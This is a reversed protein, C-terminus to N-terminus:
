NIEIPGRFGCEKSACRANSQGSPLLLWHCQPCPQSLPKINVAIDCDLSKYNICGYFRTNRKLRTREVLEGTECKPCAVGITLPGSNKCDPFGSCSLFRGYKGLRIVMPRECKECYKDTEEQLERRDIRPAEVLVDEVTEDFPKFFEMLSPNWKANGKAIDDLTKEMESTFGIDLINTFYKALFETVVEGLLTPHFRGRDLIVYDRDRITNLISAYTSPRGIGEKELNRILTAESFRPPPQTFKQQPDLGKCILEQGRDFRPLQQVGEEDEEDDKGESYIVRFGDFKPVTGISRFGYIDKTVTGEANIDITTRDFKSDTMQSSVMRKWILTYLRHQDPELFSKLSDPTRFISTPRIAEHAEQAGQVRRSYVRAKDPLYASGFKQNIYDRTETYASSAVNTSDTRMYTILGVVEAGEIAKGEYLQQAVTMTRSASFRLARSADQQLTSTIFPASPKRTSERTEFRSVAFSAEGLDELVEDSRNKDSIVSKRDNITVLTSKISSTNITSVLADINWFEKKVFDTIEKEKDVIMRVAVSQVRGASLGTKVKRWLVPSLKFGVILDLISRAQQANVLDTDLKGPNAFAEEIAPKTIEHFVVRKVKSADIGIAEILHWAIAEGERDPDTALYINAAERAAPKLGKIVQGKGRIVSYRPVFAGDSIEVGRVVDDKNGKTAIDRVHGMSAQVDFSSGLIRGITRAKAPSEVIVLDKPM